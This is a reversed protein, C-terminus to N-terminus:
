ALHHDAHSHCLRPPGNEISPKENLADLAEEQQFVLNHAILSIIPMGHQLDLNLRSNKELGPTGAYFQGGVGELQPHATHSAHV